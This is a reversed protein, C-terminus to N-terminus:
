SVSGTRVASGPNSYGAGPSTPSPTDAGHVDADVMGLNGYIGVLASPVSGSITKSANEWCIDAPEQKMM